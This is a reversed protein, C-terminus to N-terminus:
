KDALTTARIHWVAIFMAAIVPGLVFGNIGFVAMGGLTTIMVVYDPMRTDRGVLIPRLLNDVLGIVLVGYATLALCKGFEGAFLFYLAVPGWILAAGVAPLLSLFAMLVAWILSGSVGLVAFGLGGLAGQILAVLLNGKVTARIVTAFKERLAKKHEPALPIAQWASRGVANGDRILFFALYLAIFVNAIFEFTVQGVNFTQTAVGQTGQTLAATLRRQLTNFSVLGFRDLVATVWSPLANFVQRFYQAPNIEGSQLQLYFDSAQSLLLAVLLVLPLVVMVLVIMITLLAALTPRQRVRPLLWRNLPAFMLALISGWLIAGFFPLLIACLAISVGVLLLPLARNKVVLPM